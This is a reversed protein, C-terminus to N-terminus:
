APGARALWRSSGMMIKVERGLSLLGASAIDDPLETPHTSARVM